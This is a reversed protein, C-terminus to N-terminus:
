LVDYQQTETVSCVFSLWSFLCSVLVQPLFLAAPINKFISCLSDSVVSSMNGLHIMAHSLSTSSRLFCICQVNEPVSVSLVSALSTCVSAVFSSVFFPFAFAYLFRGITSEQKLQNRNMCASEFIGKMVIIQQWANM